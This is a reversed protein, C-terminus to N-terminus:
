RGGRSLKLNSLPRLCANAQENRGEERRKGKREELEMVDRGENERFEFPHEVRRQWDDDLAM